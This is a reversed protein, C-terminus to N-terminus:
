RKNHIWEIFKGIPLIIVYCIGFLLLCVTWKWWDKNHLWDRGPYDLKWQRHWIGVGLLNFLLLGLLVFLVVYDEM